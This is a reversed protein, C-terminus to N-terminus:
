FTGTISQATLGNDRHLTALVPKSGGIWHSAAPVDEPVDVFRIVPWQMIEVSPKGPAPVYEFDVADAPRKHTFTLIPAPCRGTVIRDICGAEGRM